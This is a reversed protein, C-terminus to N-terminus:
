IEVILVAQSVERVVASTAVLLGIPNVGMAVNAVVTM